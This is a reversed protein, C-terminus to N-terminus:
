LHMYKLKQIFIKKGVEALEKAEPLPRSDIIIGLCLCFIAVVMCFFATKIATKNKKFIKMLEKKNENEM